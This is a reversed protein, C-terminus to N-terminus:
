WAPAGDLANWPPSSSTPARRGKVASSVIRTFNRASRRGQDRQRSSAGRAHRSRQLRGPRDPVPTPNYAPSSPGTNFADGVFDFGKKSGARGFCGGLDPHDYDIGSDIVAVTVGRGSLGLETQAIDAGTMALATVM